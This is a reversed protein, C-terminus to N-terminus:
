IEDSKQHTRCSLCSRMAQLYDPLTGVVHAKFVSQLMCCASKRLTALFPTLYPLLWLAHMCLFGFFFFNLFYIFLVCGSASSTSSSPM